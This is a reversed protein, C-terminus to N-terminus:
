QVNKGEYKVDLAYGTYTGFRRAGQILIADKKDLTENFLVVVCTEPSM